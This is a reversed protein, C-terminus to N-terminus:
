CVCFLKAHISNHNCICIFNDYTRTGTDNLGHEKYFTQVQNKRRELNEEEQGKKLMWACRELRNMTIGLNAALSLKDKPDLTFFNIYDKSHESKLVESYHRHNSHKVRQPNCEKPYMYTLLMNIFTHM